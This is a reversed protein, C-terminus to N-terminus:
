VEPIPVATFVVYVWMRSLALLCSYCWIRAVSVTNRTYSRGCLARARVLLARPTRADSQRSRQRFSEAAAEDPM